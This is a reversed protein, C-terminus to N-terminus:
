RNVKEQYNPGDKFKLLVYKSWRDSKSVDPM